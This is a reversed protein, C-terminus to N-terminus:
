IIPWAHHSTAPQRSCYPTKGTGGQCIMIYIGLVIHLPHAVHAQLNHGRMYNALPPRHVM